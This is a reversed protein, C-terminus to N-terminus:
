FKAPARLPNKRNKVLAEITKTPIHSTYKLPKIVSGVKTLLDPQVMRKFSANTNWEKGVPVDMEANFEAQTKYNHPLNQVMYKKFSKDRHQNIIVNDLLADKREARLEKMKKDRKKLRRAEHRENSGLSDGAWSGWGEMAKDGKLTEDVEDDILADKEAKFEELAIQDAEQDEDHEKTLTQALESKLTPNERKTKFQDLDKESDFTLATRKKGAATNSEGWKLALDDATPVGETSPAPKAKADFSVTKSENNEPKLTKKTSKIIPEPKEEVKDELDEIMEKAQEKLLTEEKEAAKKMFAMGDIGTKKAEAKKKNIDGESFKLEIPGESDSESDEEKDDEAGVEAEIMEKAKQKIAKEDDDSSFYSDSDSGEEGDPRNVSKVKQKLDERTQLMTNFKDKGSGEAINGFRKLNRAFKTKTGHRMGIREEVRKEEQKKRYEDAAEPDIEELQSLLKTEDRAKAKNKLKHYLKSKIKKIRKSKMQNQFIASKMKSVQRVRDELSMESAILGAESEKAEKQRTMEMIQKELSSKPQYTSVMAKISTGNIRNEEVTFDSVGKERGQKIQSLWKKTEGQTQKYNEKRDRRQKKIGRLQPEVPVLKSMQKLQKRLVANDAALEDGEGQLLINKLSSM